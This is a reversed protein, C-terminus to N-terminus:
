KCDRPRKTSVQALMSEMAAAFRELALAATSDVMKSTRKNGRVLDSDTSQMADAYRPLVRDAIETWHNEWNGRTGELTEYRRIIEAAVDEM